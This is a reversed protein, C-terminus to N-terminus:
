KDPIDENQRVYESEAKDYVILQDSDPFVMGLEQTAVKYIYEYDTGADIKAQTSDNDSKLTSLQAELTRIEKQRVDVSSRAQIYNVAMAMIAICAVALVIVYPITMYSAKEQNKRAQYQRKEERKGIQYYQEQKRVTNGEIYSYTRRGKNAM